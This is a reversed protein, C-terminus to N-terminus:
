SVSLAPHPSEPQESSARPRWEEVKVRLGEALVPKSLYDDMGAALCRDRDTQMAAATMAIIPTHRGIAAELRRIEATAEYGDMVPMHCDMFVLDVEQERVKDVAQQGNEAIEVQCGQRRLLLAALKQNVINDEAVLVRCIGPVHKPAMDDTSVSDGPAGSLPIRIAALCPGATRSTSSMRSTSSISSASSAPDSLGLCLARALRSLRVPKVLREAFMNGQGKRSGAAGTLCIVRVPAFVESSHIRGALNPAGHTAFHEELIVISFPDEASKGRELLAIAGEAADGADRPIALAYYRVGLSSLQECLVRRSLESGAVVLVRAEIRSLDPPAAAHEPIELTLSFWFTSGEGLRSEFGIEGGMLEVLQKSIALGLGTGGFKRTTSTDGQSFKEFLQGQTSEPIGVGTDAVSFRITSTTSTRSVCEAQIVVQGSETFKVANGALNLLVQRIRGGDGVVSHDTGPAHRIIIEFGKEAAHASMLDGVEGLMEELDFPAPDVRLKGAEIKSIDLIDNLVTLLVAGSHAITEVQERQETELPTALLLSAMGLVGNLPTRIEHSMNALFDTKARNAAAAAELAKALDATREAAISDARARTSQLSAVLGALALPLLALSFGLWASPSDIAGLNDGRSWGHTFTHGTLEFRTVLEFRKAPAKGSHYLMNEASTQYGDFADMKILDAETGLVGNLLTEPVMSTYVWAEIAARRQAVTQTPAGPRYVPAFTLFEPRPGKPSPESERSAITIQGYDRAKEAAALRGPHSDLLDRRQEGYTVPIWGLASIGPYSENALLSRVYADWRERAPLGSAAIFSAGSELVAHYRGVRQRVGDEGISVLSRFRENFLAKQGHDVVAFLWGGLAWGVLLITAPLAMAGTSRFLPLLLAALQVASLFLVLSILNENLSGGTFPGNGLTTGWVTFGCVVLGAFRATGPGCWLAIWLLIPFVVFPWSAGASSAALIWCVVAVSGIGAVQSLRIRPLGDGPRSLCLGISLLVPAVTLAGLFDGALWTELAKGWQATNLSTVGVAAGIWPSVVAAVVIGLPESIGRLRDRKGLAWRVIAAGAWSEALDGAAMAVMAVPGVPSLADGAIAALLLAPWIRNGFLLMAAIGVGAAPWVPSVNGNQSALLAGLRYAAFYVVATVVYQQWITLRCSSLGGSPNDLGFRPFRV